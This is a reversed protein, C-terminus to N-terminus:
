GRVDGWMRRWIRWSGDSQRKLINVHWSKQTRAPQAGDKTTVVFTLAGSGSTVATDGDLHVEDITLQMAVVRTTTGAPFWFARIAATGSIPPLGSPYIIADPALTAMVRDANNSLWADRYARTAAEAQARDGFTMPRRGEPVPPIQAFAALLALMLPLLM